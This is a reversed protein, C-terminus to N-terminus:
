DAGSGGSIYFELYEVMNEMWYVRGHTGQNLHLQVCAGRSRLKGAM